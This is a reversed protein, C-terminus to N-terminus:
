RSLAVSVAVDKYAVTVSDVKIRRATTCGTLGLCFLIVAPAVIKRLLRKYNGDLDPAKTLEKIRLRAKESISSLGLSGVPVIEVLVVLGDIGDHVDVVKWDKGQARSIRAIQDPSVPDTILFSLQVYELTLM